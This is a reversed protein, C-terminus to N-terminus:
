EHRQRNLGLRQAIEDMDKQEIKNALQQAQQQYRQVLKRLGELRTYATQWLDRAKDVNQQHWKISNRQQEIATELQSLFRQYNMLWEGSVGMQGQKQWQDQYDGRYQELGQLQSQAHMLQHQTKALKAAADRETEEAMQVVPLLRKVRKLM